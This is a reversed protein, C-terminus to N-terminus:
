LIVRWVLGLRTNRQMYPHYPNYGAKEICAADYRAIAHLARLIGTFRGKPPLIARSKAHMNGVLAELAASPSALTGVHHRERWERPIREIGQAALAPIARALGVLAYARSLDRIEGESPISAGYAAALRAMAQHLAGATADLYALFAGERDIREPELDAERAEVLAQLVSPFLIGSAVPGALAQVVPHARAPKGAALEDIAERWWGLRIAGIMPDSVMEATSAIEHQFAVLAYLAAHAGHPAHQIALFRRYDHARVETILTTDPATRSSSAHKPPRIPM